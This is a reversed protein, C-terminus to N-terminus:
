VKMQLQLSQHKSLTSVASRYAPNALAAQLVGQIQKIESTQPMESLFFLFFYLLHGSTM